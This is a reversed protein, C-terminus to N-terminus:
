SASICRCGAAASWGAMLRRGPLKPTKESCLHRLRRQQASLRVLHACFSAALAKKPQLGELTLLAHLTLVAFIARKIVVKALRSNEEVLEAIYYLGTALCLSLFVAFCYAGAYVCLSTVSTSARMSDAQGGACLNECPVNEVKSLNVYLLREVTPASFM